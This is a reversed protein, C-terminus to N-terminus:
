SPDIRLYSDPTKNNAIDEVLDKMYRKLSQNFDEYNKFGLIIQLAKEPTKGVATEQMVEQYKLTGFEKKLMLCFMMAVRDFMERKELDFTKYTEETTELLTKSFFTPNENELVDMQVSINKKINSVTGNLVAMGRHIWWGFKVEYRQEFEALCVETLAMPVTKAPSDNLLLFIISEKITGDANRRIEVSSTELQFLKKYLEADNVCILKCESKFDIDYLGWRQFLWTKITELNDHLYKAHSDSLSCVVFNPTTWRNWVKDKILDDDPSLHMETTVEQPLIVPIIDAANIEFTLISVM